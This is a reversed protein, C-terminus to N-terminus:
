RVRCMGPPSGRSGEATNTSSPSSSTATASILQPLSTPPGLRPSGVTHHHEHESIATHAAGTPSYVHGPPVLPMGTSHDYPPPTQVSPLSSGAQPHVLSGPKPTTPGQLSVQLAATPHMTPSGHICLPPPAGASRPSHITPSPLPLATSFPQSPPLREMALMTNGDVVLQM